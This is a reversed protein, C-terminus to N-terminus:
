LGKVSYASEDSPDFSYKKSGYLVEPVTHNLTETLLHCSSSTVQVMKKACSFCCNWFERVKSFIVDDKTPNHM